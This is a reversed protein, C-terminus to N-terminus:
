SEDQGTNVILESRGANLKKCQLSIVVCVRISVPAEDMGTSWGGVIGADELGTHAIAVRGTGVQSTYCPLPFYKV